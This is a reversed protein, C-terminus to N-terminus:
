SKPAPPAFVRPLRRLSAADREVDEDSPEASQSRLRQELAKLRDRFEQRIRAREPM